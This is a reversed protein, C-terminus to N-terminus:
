LTSLPLHFDQIATTETVVLDTHAFWDQVALREWASSRLSEYPLDPQEGLLVVYNFKSDGELCDAGPVQRQNTVAISSKRISSIMCLSPVDNTESILGQLFTM